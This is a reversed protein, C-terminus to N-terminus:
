EILTIFYESVATLLSHLHVERMLKQWEERVCFLDGHFGQRSLYVCVSESLMHTYPFAATYILNLTLNFVYMTQSTEWYNHMQM